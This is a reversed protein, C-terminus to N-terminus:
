QGQACGRSNVGLGPATGPCADQGDAIGDGDSDVLRADRTYIIEASRAALYLPWVVPLNDSLRVYVACLAPQTAQSPCDAQSANSGANLMIESRTLAEAPVIPVLELNALSVETGPAVNQIDVRAGLDLTLPDAATVSKTAKFVVSYRKFGRDATVNLARDALSEYSNSGGGGRRVVVNLWQRDAGSAADFSLRYWTGATISFNPSSLIGPSAGAVYRACWGPSCAVRSLSGLPRTANWSTWGVTNSALQGNPVQNSGNMLVSTFRTQSTGSGHVDLGRPVGATSANRWEALTYRTAQLPTREDAVLPFVSDLYRNQDFSGFRSTDRIVTDLYIGRAAASTPAIQNATVTNGSLDGLANVANHTEQLWLQNVRNGYLRNGSVINNSAIHLQIGSDADTVTNGLVRVGSAYDDLYIGQAQTFAAAPSKGALAGRSRQVLNGAIVGNNNADSVYIAGCDDLVSCSGNLVNSSVTSNALPWIGVYATNTISNASVTAYAGPRIAARARRPLSLTSAGNMVVGIDALVNGDVWMGSAAPLIDDQGTIGDAGIRNFANAAILLGQSNTANVGHESTDEIRSNRLVVGVTSKLNLGTGVARVALGDLTIYRRSELDIGTALRSSAVMDGPARSDPMWAYLTQTSADHFWEGPSDLMWLQGLLYYGWGAKLPYTTTASLSLKAGAVASLSREEITWANSRIRVQTGAGLVAGAPLALDAGTLLYSSAPRNNVLVADADAAMRLYISDPNGSDHGRNPHHALTMNGAASLVQAPVGALATKYVNGRHLTWQAAAISTAGNILPRAACGAPYAVVTIPNGNVGSAPLTLTENWESGCVLRLSDGAALSATKLRALSRWPGVAGAAPAAALGNNADSGLSSDLYYVAGPVAADTAAAAPAADAARLRSASTALKDPTAPSADAKHTDPPSGLPTLGALVTAPTSDPGTALMAQALLADPGAAAQDAPADVPALSASDQRSALPAAAAQQPAASPTDGAGGGCASLSLALAMALASGLAPGKPWAAHWQTHRRNCKM